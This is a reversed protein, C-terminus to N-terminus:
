LTGTKSSIGFQWKGENESHKQIDLAATPWKLTALPWVSTGGATPLAPSSPSPQPQFGVTMRKDADRTTTTMVHLSLTTSIPQPPTQAWIAQTNLIAWPDLPDM